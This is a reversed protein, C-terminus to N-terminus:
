TSWSRQSRTAALAALVSALYVAAIVTGLWAWPISLTFNPLRWVALVVPPVAVLLALVTGVGVTVGQQIIVVQRTWHPSLGIALLTALYGRLARVQGHAVALCTGLVLAALAVTAASFALPAIVPPPTRHVHVQDPDLGAALVARQAAETEASTLGAYVLAGTSTPLGLRQATEILVVGWEAGGGWDTALPPRVHASPITPTTSVAKSPGSITLRRGDQGDDRWTLVGGDRLTRRQHATLSRGLLASVQAPTDLALVFGTGIPDLSVFRQTSDSSLYRLSFPVRTPGLAGQVIKRTAAAPAQLGGGPGALALQGPLVDPLTGAQATAVMTSLLTFFGLPLGLSVAIMTSALVARRRDALLQRRALRPRATRGPLARLALNLAEPSLFIVAVALTAGLVMADPPSDLRPLQLAGACGVLLALVHRYDRWRWWSRRAPSTAASDDLIPMPQTPGPRRRGSAYQAVAGVLGGLLTMALLRLAPDQLGTIPSLPRTHLSQLIPRTALAVGLGLALGAAAATLAWLIAAIALGTVAHTRRVGLDTLTALTRRHRRDNFGLMTLTALLPLILSPIEYAAPIRSTWPRYQANQALETRTLTQTALAKRLTAAPRAGPREALVGAVAAVLQDPREAPTAVVVSATLRPFDGALAPDLAAWTGPAALITPYKEYRDRASGVVQFRVRGSLLSLAGGSPTPLDDAGTLVVQGPETPWRGSTLVYQASHMNPRWSTEVFRTRPPDVGSPRLDDTSLQVSMPLASGAGDGPRAELRRTLGDDGPKVETLGGLSVSAGFEGLDEAVAQEGSRDLSGLTAFVAVLFAATVVVVWTSRALARGRAFRRALVLPLPMRRVPPRNV